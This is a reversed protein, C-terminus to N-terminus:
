TICSQSSDINVSEFSFYRSLHIIIFLELLSLLLEDSDGRWKWPPPRSRCITLVCFLYYLTFTSLIIFEIIRIFYNEGRRHQKQHIKLKRSLNSIDKQKETKNVAPAFSHTPSKHCHHLINLGLMCQHFKRCLSVGALKWTFAASTTM